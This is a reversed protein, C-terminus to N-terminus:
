KDLTKDKLIKVAGLYFIFCGLAMGVHSIDMHNFWKSIGWEQLFVMGSIGSVAVAYLFLKSGKSKTRWYMYASFGGVVILLGYTSHYVVIYFNLTFFALFMFTTLEVINLWSFFIGTKRNVVKRTYEIVARELMAVSVMSVFWGPLKWEFALAYNFGHGIIGGLATAIGMSLFYYKLYFFLKGKLDFHRLKIFAYICVATVLLDTIVTVPEAIKLNGIWIDPQILDKNQIEYKM